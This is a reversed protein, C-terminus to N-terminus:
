YEDDFLLTEIDFLSNKKKQLLLLCSAKHLVEMGETDCNVRLDLDNLPIALDDTNYYKPTSDGSGIASVIKVVLKGAMDVRLFFRIANDAPDFFRFSM